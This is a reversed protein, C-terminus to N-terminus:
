RLERVGEKLRYLTKVQSDTLSENFAALDDMRGVYAAGLVL